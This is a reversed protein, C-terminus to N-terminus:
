VCNMEEFGGECRVVTRKRLGVSADRAVNGPADDHRHCTAAM